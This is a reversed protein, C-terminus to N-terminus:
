AAPPPPLVATSSVPAPPNAAASQPGLHLLKELASLRTEYFTYLRNWDKHGVWFGVAFAILVVLLVFLYLYM